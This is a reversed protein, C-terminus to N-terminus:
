CPYCHCFLMVVPFSSITIENNWWAPIVPCLGTADVMRPTIRGRGGRCSGDLRCSNETQWFQVRHCPLVAEFFVCFFGPFFRLLWWGGAGGKDRLSLTPLAAWPCWNGGYGRCELGARRSPMLFGLTEVSPFSTKYIPLGQPHRHRLEFRMIATPHSLSDAETCGSQPPM